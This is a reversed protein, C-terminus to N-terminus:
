KHKEDCIAFFIKKLSFQRNMKSTGLVSLLKSSRSMKLVKMRLNTLAKLGMMYMAKKLPRYTVEIYNLIDNQLKLITINFYYLVRKLIKLNLDM